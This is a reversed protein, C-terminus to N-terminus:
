SQEQLLKDIAMRILQGARIRLMMAQQTLKGDDDIIHGELFDCADETTFQERFKGDQDLKKLAAIAQESPMDSLAARLYRAWARTLENKAQHYRGMLYNATADQPNVFLASLLYRRAEAMQQNELALRGRCINILCGLLPADKTKHIQTAASECFLEAALLNKNNIAEEAYHVFQEAAPKPAMGISFQGVAIQIRQMDNSEVAMKLLWKRGEAALRSDPYTKLYDALATQNEEAIANFYVQENLDSIIGGSHEVLTIQKNQIDFYVIFNQWFSNAIVCDAVGMESSYDDHVKIATYDRLNVGMFRCNEFDATESGALAAVDTDFVCEYEGTAATARVEYGPDPEIATIWRGNSITASYTRDSPIEIEGFEILRNQIDVMVVPAEFATAGLVGWVPIEELSTSNKRSFSDFEDITQLIYDIGELSRTELDITLSTNDGSLLVNQIDQHLLIDFNLGLDVILNANIADSGSKLTAPVCMVGDIYRFHLQELAWARSMLLFSVSLILVLKNM